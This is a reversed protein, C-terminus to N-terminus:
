IIIGTKKTWFTFMTWFMFMTWFAKEGQFHFVFWVLLIDWPEQPWKVDWWFDQLHPTEEESRNKVEWKQGFIVLDKNEGLVWFFVFIQSTCEKLKKIEKWICVTSKGYRKQEKNKTNMTWFNKIDNGLHKGEFRQQMATYKILQSLCFIKSCKPVHSQTNKCFRGIPGFM